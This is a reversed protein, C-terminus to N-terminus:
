DGDDTVRDVVVRMVWEDGWEKTPPAMFSVVAGYGGVVVAPGVRGFEV